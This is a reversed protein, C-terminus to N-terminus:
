WQAHRYDGGGSRSGSPDSRRLGGVVRVSAPTKLVQLVPPLRTRGDLGPRDEEEEGNGMELGAEVAAEGGIAAAACSPLLGGDRRRHRGHNYDRKNQTRGNEITIQMPHLVSILPARKYPIATDL